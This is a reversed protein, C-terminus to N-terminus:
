VGIIRLLLDLHKWAMKYEEPKLTRNNVGREYFSKLVNANERLNVSSYLNPLLEPLINSVVERRQNVDEHLKFLWMRFANQLDDGFPINIFLEPPNLKIWDRYHVQCKPCPLLAGFHRLTLRIENREDRILSIHNQNGVREAIGHLLAWANPGWEAPSVMLVSAIFFSVKRAYNARVYFLM